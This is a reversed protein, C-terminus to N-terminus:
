THCTPESDKTAATDRITHPAGPAGSTSTQGANNTQIITLTGTTPPQQTGTSSITFTVYNRGSVTVNSDVVVATVTQTTPSSLIRYSYSAIGNSDTRDSGIRVNNNNRFEVNVNRVARQSSDVVRASLTVSSNASGSLSSRGSIQISVDTQTPTPITTGTVTLSLTADRYNGATDIVQATRTTGSPLNPIRLTFSVSGNADTRKAPVTFPSLIDINIGSQRPNTTVSVNVVENPAGSVSSPFVVLSGTQPQTSRQVNLTLPATRGGSSVTVNHTGTTSPLNFTIVARGNADATGSALGPLSFSGIQVAAHPTAGTVTVSVSAGPAGTRSTPSVRLTGTGPDRTTTGTGNINFTVRRIIDDYVGTTITAHVVRAGTTAGVNYRVSAEGNADTAVTIRRDSNAPTPTSAPAQGPDGTRRDLLRGSSDVTFVVDKGEVIAGAADRVIIVLPEALEHSAAARQNNGSVIEIRALDEPDGAVATFERRYGGFEARVTHGGTSGSLQLLVNARGSNDTMVTTATDAAVPFGDAYLEDPFNPDKVLTGQSVATFTVAQGSVPRTGDLVQVVFPEVLNTSTNGVQDDGSVKKFTIPGNFYTVVRTASDGGISGRIHATVKATSNPNVRVFASAVSGSGSSVYLNSVYNPRTLDLVDPDLHLTGGTISLNVGVNAASTAISILSGQTYQTGGYTQPTPTTGTSAITAGRAADSSLAEVVYATFTQSATTGSVPGSPVSATVTTPAATTPLNSYNVRARGSGDTLIEISNVNGSTSRFGTQGSPTAVTYTVTQGSVGRNNTGSDVVRVELPTNLGGAGVNQVQSNGSVRQIEVKGYFITVEHTAGSQTSGPITVRVKSTSASSAQYTVAAVGSSDTFATITRSGSNLSTHIRSGSVYYYDGSTPETTYLNGSGTSITFQVKTWASATTGDTSATVEIRKASARALTQPSATQASFSYFNTQSRNRVVYASITKTEPDSDDDWDPDVAVEFLGYDTVSYNVTITGSWRWAETWATRADPDTISAPPDPATFTIRATGDGDSAGVPADPVDISRAAAPSSYTIDITDGTAARNVRINFSRQIPDTSSPDDSVEIFTVGATSSTIANDGSVSLSQADAVGHVGVALVLAILICLVSKRTFFTNNM